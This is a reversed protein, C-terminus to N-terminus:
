RTIIEKFANSFEKYVDPHFYELNDKSIRYLKFENNRTNSVSRIISSFVIKFFDRVDSDEIEYIAKKIRNLKYIVDKKFWFDINYVPPTKLEEKKYQKSKNLVEIYEEKLVKTDIPTTKVKSILCALPNIDSGIIKTFRSSLKAELLTTGSGCFPDYITEGSSYTKIIKDAIQPIMIAPYPHIGHNSYNIDANKYDLSTDIIEKSNNQIM